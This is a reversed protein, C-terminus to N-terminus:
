NDIFRNVVIEMADLSVAVIEIGKDKYEPYLDQMYPMEDKCPECWTGWFNLMVGKRRLDSLQVTELENNANVQQLQFDPEDLSM